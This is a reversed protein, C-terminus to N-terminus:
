KGSTAKAKREARMQAIRDLVTKSYKGSEMDKLTQVPNDLMAKTEPTAALNVGYTLLEAQKDALVQKMKPEIKALYEDTYISALASKETKVATVLPQNKVDAVNETPFQLTKTEGNLFAAMAALQGKMSQIDREQAAVRGALDNSNIGIAVNITKSLQSKSGEWAVGIVRSFDETKMNKPSVAKAYGDENGAPLIYDGVNAPGIIRVPVQGMFAVKEFDKQHAPQPMNGLVIPAKSIVMIHDAGETQHSIKGGKVGVVEGYHFVDALNERELWEAYDAAGSQYAVGCELDQTVEWNTTEITFEALQVVVAALEASVGVAMPITIVLAYMEALEITLGVIDAALAVLELTFLSFQIAWQPDEHLEALTQGEIRGQMGDEDWFSIYKNESSRSGDTKIAMGQNSGDMQLSYDQFKYGAGDNNGTIHLRGVTAQDEVSLDKGLAVDQQFTVKGDPLVRMREINNTVVVLPKIDATGLKATTPTACNGSTSWLTGTVSGSGCAETGAGGVAGNSIEDATGAHFAYPVTLLRTSSVKKFDGGGNPDM